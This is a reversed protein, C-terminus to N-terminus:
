ERGEHAEFRRGVDDAPLLALAKGFFRLAARKSHARRADQAADLFAEAATDRDGALELHRAIRGLPRPPPGARLLAAARRHMHVLDAPEIAQYLVQRFIASTLAPGSARREVFGRATLTRLAEELRSAAKGVLGPLDDERLGEGIVAVWRLVGRDVEDLEDLRASVVGDLTTPLQLPVDSKRRMAPGEPGEVREAAGREMTADVLELLFFPNGGGRRVLAGRLDPTPPSGFRRELLETRAADPLPGLELRPVARLARLVRADPRTGVVVLCPVDYRRRSMRALMALSPDDAWQVGDIWVVLAGQNERRAREALGMMWREVSRVVRPEHDADPHANGGGFLPALPRVVEAAEDGLTRRAAVLLKEEANGGGGIAERFLEIAAQFPVDRGGFTCEAQLVRAPPALGPLTAAVLASKGMGLEGVVAVFQARGTERVEAYLAELRAREAERGVIPGEDGGRGKEDGRLARELPWAALGRPTEATAVDIERAPAFAYDRRTLRRVEGAVLVEGPAAADSLAEAVLLVDDVPTWRLLRGNADRHASVTGRGVGVSAALPLTRDASLGGLADLCDTAAALARLPDNVSARGLGFIMRFRPTGAGDPWSLVADSKFAIEDLVRAADPGADMPGPDTADGASAGSRVLGALAVVARRELTEGGEAASQQTDPAAAPVDGPVTRERPVVEQLFAELDESGWRRDLGHLYAALAQGMERASQYRDDPRRATAKAVIVDLAPPVGPDVSRPLTRDGERVKALVDMRGLGEYMPRGLLVEALLIGLAYVDSRRDVADGRAHEPSMYAFKGKILGSDESVLRAKAIGFDAIKVVGEYGLLVNQPSVDRHVIELPEGAADRRRHAYDLGRAVQLVVWGALGFPVKRGLQKGRILLRALDVGDVHEMALLLEQREEEFAYVQVVNPHNLTMAVKAEGVFMANFRPSSAFSPLIRKLVLLKEVGSAGRSNALFVEAMGGKGLRYEIRYRGIRAPVEQSDDSRAM